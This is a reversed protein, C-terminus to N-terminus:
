FTKFVPKGEIRNTGTAIWSKLSKTLPEVDDTDDMKYINDFFKEATIKDTLLPLIVRTNFDETGKGDPWSIMEDKGGSFRTPKNQMNSLAFPTKNRGRLLEYTYINDGDIDEFYKFGFFYIEINGFPDKLTFEWGCIVKGNYVRRWKDFKSSEM